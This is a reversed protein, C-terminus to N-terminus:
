PVVVLCNDGIEMREMGSGCLLFRVEEEGRWRLSASTILSSLCPPVSRLAVSRPNRVFALLLRLFLVQRCGRVIVAGWALNPSSSGFGRVPPLMLGVVISSTSALGGAQM